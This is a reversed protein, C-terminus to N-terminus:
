RKPPRDRDGDPRRLRRVTRAPAINRVCLRMWSARAQGPLARLVLKVSLGAALQEATSKGSCRWPCAQAVCSPMCGLGIPCHISSASCQRPRPFLWVKRAGYVEYNEQWVRRIQVALMEDRIARVSRRSYDRLRAAHRRYASPSVQLVRCLPEVGFAKRHEDILSWIVELPPRTGGPRFFRQRGQPDRQGAQARSDRTGARQHSSRGLPHHKLPFLDQSDLQELDSCHLWDQQVGGRHSGM